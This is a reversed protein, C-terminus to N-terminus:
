FISVPNAPYFPGNANVEVTCNIPSASATLGSWATANSGLLSGDILIPPGTYSYTSSAPIGIQFSNTGLTNSWLKLYSTSANANQCQFGTLLYYSPFDTIVTGIASIQSNAVVNPNPSFPLPVGYGTYVGTVTLPSSSQCPNIVIRKYLYYANSFITGATVSSTSLQPGETLIFWTIQDNSGDLEIYGQINTCGSPWSYSISDSLQGRNPLCPVTPTPIQSAACSLVYYTPGGANVHTFSFNISFSYNPAQGQVRPLSTFTALGALLALIRVKTRTHLIVVETQKRRRQISAM